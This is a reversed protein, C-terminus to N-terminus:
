ASCKSKHPLVVVQTLMQVKIFVCTSKYYDANGTRSSLVRGRSFIILEFLWDELAEKRCAELDRAEQAAPDERVSGRLDPAGSGIQLLQTHLRASSLKEGIQALFEGSIEGEGKGRGGAMNEHSMTIACGCGRILRPYQHCGVGTLIPCFLCGVSCNPEVARTSEYGLGEWAWADRSKMFLRPTQAQSPEHLTPISPSPLAQPILASASYLWCLASASYLWSM